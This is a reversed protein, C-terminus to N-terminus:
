QQSPAKAADPTTQGQMAAFVKQPDFRNARLEKELRKIEDPSMELWLAQAHTKANAVGKRYALLFYYYAAPRDVSVGEGKWYMDGLAMMAREHGGRSALLYWKAAEKPDAQIGLGRQYLYGVCFQGPAYNLKAASRCLAMAQGYDQAVGKGNTLLSALNVEAEPSLDTAKRYWKAAEAYSQPLDDGKEYMAAVKLLADPTTRLRQGEEASRKVADDAARNGADQALLFWAYALTPDSPVGDGNYYSVGLNFMAQSSGQKAAKHFWRVAEEKDPIVGLGLRYMIGLRSEADSNAHDASKRYWKVATEDSQPVGNGGEYAKGLAFQASADGNEARARLESVQTATLKPQAQQEAPSQTQPLGTSAQGGVALGLAFYLVLTSVSAVRTLSSEVALGFEARPQSSRGRRKLGM